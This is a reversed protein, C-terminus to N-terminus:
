TIQFKKGISDDSVAEVGINNRFVRNNFQIQRDRFEYYNNLIRHPKFFATRINYDSLKINKVKEISDRDRKKEEAIFVVNPVQNTLGHYFISTLNCFYSKPHLANAIEYVTHKTKTRKSFIKVPDTFDSDIFFRRIHKNDLLFKEFGYETQFRTSLMYKRLFLHFHHYRRPTDLFSLVKELLEDSLQNKM